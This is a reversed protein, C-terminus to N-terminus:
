KWFGIPDVETVERGDPWPLVLAPDTDHVVRFTHGIRQELFQVVGETPMQLYGALSKGCDLYELTELDLICTHIGM